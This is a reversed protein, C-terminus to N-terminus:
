CSRVGAKIQLTEWHHGMNALDSFVCPRDEAEDSTVPSSVFTNPPEILKRKKVSQNKSKLDVIIDTGSCKETHSHKNARLCLQYQQHLSCCLLSTKSSRTVCVRTCITERHSSGEHYITNQHVITTYITNYKWSYLYQIQKNTKRPNNKRQKEIFCNSSEVCSHFRSNAHTIVKWGLLLLTIGDTHFWTTVTETLQFFTM